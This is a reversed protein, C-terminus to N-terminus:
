DLKHDSLLMRPLLTKVYPMGYTEEVSSGDTSDTQVM